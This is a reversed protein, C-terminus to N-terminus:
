NINNKKNIKNFFENRRIAEEVAARCRADMEKDEPTLYKDVEESYVVKIKQEEEVFVAVHDEIDSCGYRIDLYGEGGPGPVMKLNNLRKPLDRVLGHYLYEDNDNGWVRITEWEPLIKMIKKLKM